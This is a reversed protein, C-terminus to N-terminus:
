RFTAPFVEIFGAALLPVLVAWWRMDSLRRLTAWGLVTAALGAVALSGIGAV